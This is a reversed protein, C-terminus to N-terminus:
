PESSQIDQRGSRTRLINLSDERKEMPRVKIMEGNICEPRRTTIIISGHSVYPYYETLRYQEPEDYNDFILLWRTNELQSLWTSVHNRIQNDDYRSEAGLPLIRRASLRLSSTLTTESKANLWFISTYSTRHRKAYAVAMQTKGVGGMGGLILIKRELSKSNPQLISEM